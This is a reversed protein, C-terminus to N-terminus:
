RLRSLVRSHTATADGKAHQERIFERSENFYIEKIIM